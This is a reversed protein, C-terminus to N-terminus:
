GSITRPFRFDNAVARNPQEEMEYLQFVQAIRPPLKGLAIVLAQRFEELEMRRSPELCEGAMEHVWKVSEDLSRRRGRALTRQICQGNGAYVGCTIM